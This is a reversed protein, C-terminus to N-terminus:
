IFIYQNNPRHLIGVNLFHRWRQLVVDTPSDRTTYNYLLCSFYLVKLQKIQLLDMYYYFVVAYRRFNTLTEKACGCVRARVRARVCLVCVVCM